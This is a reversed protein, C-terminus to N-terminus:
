RKDRSLETNSIRTRQSVVFTTVNSQQIPTCCYSLVTSVLTVSLERPIFRYYEEIRPSAPSEGALVRSIKPDTSHM